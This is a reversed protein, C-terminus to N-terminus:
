LEALGSFGHGVMFFYAENKMLMKDVDLYNPYIHNLRPPDLILLSDDFFIKSAYSDIRLSNEFQVQM